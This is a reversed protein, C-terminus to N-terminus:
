HGTYMIFRHNLHLSLIKKSKLYVNYVQVVPMRTTKAGM